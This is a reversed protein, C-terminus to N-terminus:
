IEPWESPEAIVRSHQARRALQLAEELTAQELLCAGGGTKKRAGAWETAVTLTTKDDLPSVRLIEFAAPLRGADRLLKEVADPRTEGIVKINGNEIFPLIVDLVSVPSYQHRGAYRLEHFNPIFWLVRRTKDLNKILKLLREELQGLYKQGALVDTASAEFVLWGNKKFRNAAHRIIASKGVGSEGVLLVSRGPKGFLADEMANVHQLFSQHETVFEKSDSEWIRGVTKLYTTDVKRLQSDQMEALLAKTTETETLFELFSEVQEIEEATKKKLQDDIEPKEGHAVRYEIFDDFMQGTVKYDPWWEKAQALIEWVVPEESRKLRQLAFYMPWLYM